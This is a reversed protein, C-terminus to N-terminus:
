RLAQIALIIQQVRAQAAKAAVELRSKDARKATQLKALINDLSRTAANLEDILSMTFDGACLTSYTQDTGEGSKPFALIM